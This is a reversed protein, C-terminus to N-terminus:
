VVEQLYCKECYIKLKKEPANLVADLTADFKPTESIM